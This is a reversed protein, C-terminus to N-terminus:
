AEAASAKKKSERNFDELQEFDEKGALIAALAPPYADDLSKGSFFAKKGRGEACYKKSKKSVKLVQYIRVM